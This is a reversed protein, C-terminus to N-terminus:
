VLVKRLNRLEIALDPYKADYQGSASAEITTMPSVKQCWDIIESYIESASMGRTEYALALLTTVHKEGCDCAKLVGNEKIKFKQLLHKELLIMEARIEKNQHAVTAETSVGKSLSGMGPIGPSTRAPETKPAVQEPEPVTEPYGQVRGSIQNLWSILGEIDESRGRGSALKLLAQSGRLDCIALRTMDGRTRIDSPKTKWPPEIQNVLALIERAKQTIPATNAYGGRAMEKMSKLNAMINNLAQDPHPPPIHGRLADDIAKISTDGTRIINGVADVGSGFAELGKQLNRSIESFKDEM